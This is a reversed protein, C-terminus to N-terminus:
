QVSYPVSVDVTKPQFCSKDNCAQYRLKGVAVGPGAAATSSVKFSVSLDFNGTYVSLPKEAFEYKELTPKPYTVQGGELAKSLRDLTTKTAANAANISRRDARQGLLLWAQAGALVGGLIAGLTVAWHDVHLAVMLSGAGITGLVGPGVLLARRRIIPTM